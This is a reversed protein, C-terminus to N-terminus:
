RSSLVQERWSRIRTDDPSAALREYLQWGKSGFQLPGQDEEHQIILVPAGVSRARAALENIRDVVRDIDFAGWEGSCLAQQVDIVLLACRMASNPDWRKVHAPEISHNPTVRREGSRRQRGM